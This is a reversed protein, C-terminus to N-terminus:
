ENVLKESKAELKKAPMIDSRQPGEPGKIEPPTKARRASKNKVTRM